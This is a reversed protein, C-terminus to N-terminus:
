HLINAFMQTLRIEYTHEELVRRQAREGIEKREAPNKLFYNVKERLDRTDKYFVIEKELEFLYGLEERYDTLLFAGCSSIDFVRMPPSTRQQTRTINLNIKTANYLKPLEKRNEIKGFFRVRRDLLDMWAQDGYVRLDFDMLSELIEKRYKAMASFEIRSKILWEYAEKFLVKRKYTASVEELVASLDLLPNKSLIEIVEDFLTKIFPNEIRECYRQKYSYLSSGAFSVDCGYRELEEETLEIKKFIKPNSAQPLYFVNRFGWEKLKQVYTKDWV